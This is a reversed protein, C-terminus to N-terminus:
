RSIAMACWRWEASQSYRQRRWAKTQWKWENNEIRKRGSSLRTDGSPRNRALSSPKYVYFKLSFSKRCCFLLLSHKWVRASMLAPRGVRGPRFKLILQDTNSGSPSGYLWMRVWSTFNLRWSSIFIIQDQLKPRTSTQMSGFSFPSGILNFEITQHRRRRTRRRFIETLAVSSRFSSFLDIRMNNRDTFIRNEQILIVFGSNPLCGTTVQSWNLNFFATVCELSAMRHHLTILSASLRSTHLQSTRSEFVASLDNMREKHKFTRSRLLGLVPVVCCVCPWWDGFRMPIAIPM